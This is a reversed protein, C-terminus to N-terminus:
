GNLESKSATWMQPTEIESKSKKQFADIVWVDDGDHVKNKDSCFYVEKDESPIL